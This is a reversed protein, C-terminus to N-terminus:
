RESGPAASPYGVGHDVELELVDSAVAEVAM